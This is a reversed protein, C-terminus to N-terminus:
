APQSFPSPASFATATSLAAETEDDMFESCDLVLVNTSPLNMRTGKGMHKKKVIAKTKGASLQATVTHFNLQQKSCWDKFPKIMIYLIKIDYEYRAILSIRPTSDPIILMDTDSYPQRNDDTSKIRLINNYNETLFNTLVTEPGADIAGVSVRAVKM